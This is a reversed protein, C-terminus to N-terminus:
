LLIIISIPKMMLRLMITQNKRKNYVSKYALKVEESNHSLFLINLAASTNKQEFTEWDRQYPSFNIDAWRFKLLKKM